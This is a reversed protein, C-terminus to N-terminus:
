SCDARLLRRPKKTGGAPVRWLTCDTTVLLERSNPSWAVYSGSGGPPGLRQRVKGTALNVVDLAIQGDAFEYSFAINLGNPSWGFIPGNAPSPLGQPVLTISAGTRPSVVLLALGTRQAPGGTCAIWKGTPSWVPDSYCQELPRLHGGTASASWIEPGNGEFAVQKGDPSLSPDTNDVKSGGVKGVLRGSPLSLVTVPTGPGTDCCAPGGYAVRDGAADVAFAGFTDNSVGVRHVKGAGAPVAFIGKVDGYVLRNRRVWYLEAPTNILRCYGSRPCTASRLPRAHRGNRDAVCIASSGSGKGVFAIRKGNPSWTAVNMVVGCPFARQAEAKTATAASVGIGVLAAVLIGSAVALWPGRLSM